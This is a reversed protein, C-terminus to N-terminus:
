KAQCHLAPKAFQQMLINETRMGQQAAVLQSGILHAILMDSCGPPLTEFDRVTNCHLIDARWTTDLGSRGVGMQEVKSVVAAMGAM